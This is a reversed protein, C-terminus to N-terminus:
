LSGDMAIDSMEILKGNSSSPIIHVENAASFSVKRKRGKDNDESKPALTNMSVKEVNPENDYTTTVTATRVWRRIRTYKKYTDTASPNNWTNDCYIFGEDAGPKFKTKTASAPLQIAGDNTLDLMWDKDHWEWAMGSQKEPLTFMDPSPSSNLFEDTWSAREYSLMTSTWGIGLWRRQNEFLAVKFLVTKKTSSTNGVENWVFSRIKKNVSAFLRRNNDPGGLDLGTVFFVLLRVIRFKWMYRRMRRILKSHYTLVYLGGALMLYNPPLVFMTLFIYIPSLFAVTFLLRRVDQASLITIPSLVASSKMSVRDMVHIIDDLSPCSAMTEQVHKDILLYAWIIGVIMLHGFYKTITGFYLVCVTFTFIGFVNVFINDNSWTIVSLFNDVVILYPYLRVLSRSVTKPTSTLLPSSLIAEQDEEYAQANLRGKRKRLASRIHKNKSEAPDTEVIQSLNRSDINENNRESM